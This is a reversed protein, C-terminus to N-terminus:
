DQKVHIQSTKKSMESAIESQRKIKSFKPKPEISNRFQNNNM